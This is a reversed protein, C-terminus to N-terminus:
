TNKEQSVQLNNWWLMAHTPLIVLSALRSLNFGSQFKIWSTERHRSVHSICDTERHRSQKKRAQSMPNFFKERGTEQHDPVQLICDTPRRRRLIMSYVLSKKSVALPEAPFDSSKECARVCTGQIKIYAITSIGNTHVFEM